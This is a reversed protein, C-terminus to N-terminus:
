DRMHMALERALDRQTIASATLLGASAAGAVGCSWVDQGTLFLGEVDTHPAPGQRFRAPTPALGYVEGSRHAAFHATSLPTSVEVHEAADLPVVSALMACLSEALARKRADYEAGRHAHRTEIWAVFPAMSVPVAVTLATRGPHRAAWSPDIACSTSVYLQPPAAITRCAWADGDWVAREIPDRHVWLNAGDLGHAPPAGGLGVYLGVHAGSPALTALREGLASPARVLRRFTTHAGADSVVLPAEVEVGDALVVGSARGTSVRVHDVEARGVVAGGLAAIQAALAHALAAGGGVPHFAGDLYHAMTIAFSAFSSEHPPAGYSSWNYTLLAALRPSAGLEALVDGTIRDSWAFFPARSSVPGRRIRDLMFVRSARVCARVEALVREVAREEGPALAALQARRAAEDGGIRADLGPAIVRDHAAPLRAWKVRGGSAVSLVRGVMAGPGVEGVYHVGVEWAHKRRRFSQSLGGVDYHRELVLVRMRAHRALLSACVLGGIGAGVVVCDWPQALLASARARPTVGPAIV